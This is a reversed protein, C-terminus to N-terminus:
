KWTKVGFGFCLLRIYVFMFQKKSYNWDISLPLSWWSLDYWLHITYEPNEGWAVSAGHRYIDWYIKM